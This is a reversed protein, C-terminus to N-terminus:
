RAGGSLDFFAPNKMCEEIEAIHKEQERWPTKAVKSETWKLIDGDNPTVSQGRGPLPNSANERNTTDPKRQKTLGKDAKYLDIARIAQKADTENEYLANYIYTPQADLWAVFEDTEKLEVFDPHAKILEDFALQRLYNLDREDQAKVREDLGKTVEIANKKAITVVLDYVDPYKTAWDNVEEETKPFQMEKNTAANLQRRVAELEAKLENEKKAAFSRLDSYRKKYVEEDKNAPPPEVPAAPPNLREEEAKIADELAKLEADTDKISFGKSM